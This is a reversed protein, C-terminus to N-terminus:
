NNIDPIDNHIGSSSKDTEEAITTLNPEIMLSAQTHDGFNGLGEQEPSPSNVGLQHQSKRPPPYSYTSRRRDDIPAQCPCFSPLFNRMIYGYIAPIRAAYIIPDILPYLM